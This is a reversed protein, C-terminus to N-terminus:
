PDIRRPTNAPPREDFRWGVLLGLERQDDAGLDRPWVTRNVETEIVIRPHGEPVKVHQVAPITTRLETDLVLTRGM